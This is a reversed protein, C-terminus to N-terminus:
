GTIERRANMALTVPPRKAASMKNGGVAASLMFTHQSLFLNRADMEGERLATERLVNREAGRGTL